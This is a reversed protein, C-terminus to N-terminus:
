KVTTKKPRGRPRTTKPETLTKDKYGAEIKLIKVKTLERRSGRKKFYRSKSKFKISDIKEKRVNGEIRAEIRAGQVRPNGIVPTEGDTAFLVDDFAIASGETSKIKDVEITQGETVKYQKGQFKFIVSIM